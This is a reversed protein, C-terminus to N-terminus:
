FHTHSDPRVLLVRQSTQSSTTVGPAWIRSGPWAALRSDLLFEELTPADKGNRFKVEAACGARFCEFDLVVLEPHASQQHRAFKTLLDFAVGDFTDRLPPGSQRLLATLRATEDSPTFTETTQVSVPATVDSASGAEFPASATVGVSPAQVNREGSSTRLNAGSASSEKSSAVNFSLWGVFGLVCVCCASAFLKGM